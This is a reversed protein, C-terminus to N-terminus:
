TFLSVSPFKMGPGHLEELDNDMEDEDESIDEDEEVFRLINEVASQTSIRVRKPPM